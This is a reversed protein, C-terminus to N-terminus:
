QSTPVSISKKVEFLLSLRLLGLVMDREDRELLGVLLPLLLVLDAEGARARARLLALPAEGFGRADGRFAAADAVSFSSLAGVFAIVRDRICM